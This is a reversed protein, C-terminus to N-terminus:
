LYLLFGGRVILEAISKATGTFSEVDCVYLKSDEVSAADINLTHGSAKVHRPLPQKNHLSWSINPKIGTAHCIFEAYTGLEVEQIPPFIAATTKDVYIIILFTFHFTLIRSVM